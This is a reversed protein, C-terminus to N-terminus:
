LGLRSFADGLSNTGIRSDDDEKEQVEKEQQLREAQRQQQRIEAKASEDAERVVRAKKIEETRFVELKCWFNEKEESTPENIGNGLGGILTQVSPLVEEIKSKDIHVVLPCDGRYIAFVKLGRGFEGVLGLLDEWFYGPTLGYGQPNDIRNGDLEPRRHPGRRDITVERINGSNRSATEELELQKGEVVEMTTLTVEEASERDKFWKTEFRESTWRSKPTYSVAGFVVLPEDTAVCEGYQHECVEPIQTELSVEVPVEIAPKDSSQAFDEWLKKNLCERAKEIFQSSEAELYYGYGDVASYLAVERGGPLKVGEEPLDLWKRADDGRFDIRILPSAEAGRYEVSRASGSIEVENPNDRLVKEILNQDLTPLRIKEFDVVEALRRVGNLHETVFTVLESLSYVKFLDEGARSNLSRAKEQRAKNSALVEKQISM